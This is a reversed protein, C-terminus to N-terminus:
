IENEYIIYGRLRKPYLASGVIGYITDTPLIGIGGSRLTKIIDIKIKM